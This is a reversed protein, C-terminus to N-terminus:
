SALEPPADAPRITGFDLFIAEVEDVTLLTGSRPADVITHAHGRGDYWPDANSYGPRPPKSTGDAPDLVRDDEGHVAKRRDAEARDLREGLGLLSTGSGPTVSLISRRPRRSAEGSSVCLAAFGGESPCAEADSRAWDKFFVCRDPDDAEQVGRVLLAEVEVTGGFRGPLALRARRARTKPDALKRRYRDLDREVEARDDTEFIGPCGFADVETLALGRTAVQGLVYRVVELGGEVTSRWRENDSNWPRNMLRGSRRMLAAYLSGPNERSLGIVGEDVKAVYHALAEAGSPFAGDALYAIALYASAICDLDPMAHLVITFPDGASRRPDLAGAVLEPHALVLGATCGALGSDHHHDIVGPRLANGVDLYLRDRPPGGVAGAQASEGM